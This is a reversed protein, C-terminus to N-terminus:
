LSLGMAGPLARLSNIFHWLLFSIRQRVAATKGPTNGFSMPSNVIGGSPGATARGKRAGPRHRHQGGTAQKLAPALVALCARVRGASATPLTQDGKQGGPGGRGLVQPVSRLPWPCRMGKSFSPWSAALLSSSIAKLSLTLAPSQRPPGQTLWASRPDGGGRTRTGRGGGRGNHKRSTCM